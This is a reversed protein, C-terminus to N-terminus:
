HPEAQAMSRMASRKMHSTERGVVEKEIAARLRASGRNGNVARAEMAIARAHMSFVTSKKADESAKKNKIQSWKNHGSM